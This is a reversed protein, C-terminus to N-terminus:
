WARSQRSLTRLCAREDVLVRRRLGASRQHRRHTPRGQGVDQRVQVAGARDDQHVAAGGSTRDHLVQEHGEDNSLSARGVAQRALVSPHGDGARHLRRRFGPFVL